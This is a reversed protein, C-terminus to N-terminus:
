PTEIKKLMGSRELLHNHSLMINIDHACLIIQDKNKVYKYINYITMGATGFALSRVDLLGFFVSSLGFIGSLQSNTENDSVFSSIKTHLNNITEINGDYMKTCKNRLEDNDLLKNDSVYKCFLRPNNDLIKGRLAETSVRRIFPRFM